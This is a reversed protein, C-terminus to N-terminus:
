NNYVRENQRIRLKLQAQKFGKKRPSEYVTCKCKENNHLLFMPNQAHQPISLLKLHQQITFM